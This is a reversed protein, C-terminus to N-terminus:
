KCITSAKEADQYLTEETGPHDDRTSFAQILCYGDTTKIPESIEGKNLAMAATLLSAETGLMNEYLVGIDGKGDYPASESYQSFLVEFKEGAQFRDHIDKMM